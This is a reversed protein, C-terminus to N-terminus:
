NRDGSEGWPMDALMILLMLAADSLLIANKATEDTIVGAMVLIAFVLGVILLAGMIWKLIKLVKKM